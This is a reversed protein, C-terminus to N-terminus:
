LKEQKDSDVKKGIRRTRKATNGIISNCSSINRGDKEEIGLQTCVEEQKTAYKQVNTSERTKSCVKLRKHKYCYLKFKQNSKKEM